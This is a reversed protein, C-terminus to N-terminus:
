LENQKSVVYVSRLTNSIGRPLSCLASLVIMQACLVSDCISLVFFSLDDALLTSQVQCLEFLLIYLFHRLM